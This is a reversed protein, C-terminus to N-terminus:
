SKFKLKQGALDTEGDWSAPKPAHPFAAEAPAGATTAADRGVDAL